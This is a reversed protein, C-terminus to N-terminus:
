EDYPCTVRSNPTGMAKTARRRAHTAVDVQRASNMAMPAVHLSDTHGCKSVDSTSGSMGEGMGKHSLVEERCTDVTLAAFFRM